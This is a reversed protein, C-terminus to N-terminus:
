PQALEKIRKIENFQTVTAVGASIDSTTGIHSSRRDEKAQHSCASPVVTVVILAGRQQQRRGRHFASANSEPFLSYLQFITNALISDAVSAIRYQYILKNYQLMMYENEVRM